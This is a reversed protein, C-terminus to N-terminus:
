KAEMPVGNYGMRFSIANAAAILAPLVENEVREDPLRETIDFVSIAAAVTGSYDRLPVSICKNNEECEENDIAYGQKRVKEIEKALVAKDTITKSTLRELGKKELIEDIRRQSYSALLVKGSGTSHIPANKGIRIMTSMAQDPNDMFDLYMTGDGNAVVLCSGVNLTNALQNLFPSAMSRLVLNVKVSDSLKCVKWTLAYCGTQDDRYAYGLACLTKLYRLLTPQPMQLADSLDILRYPMRSDALCEIVKFLRELSQNCSELNNSDHNKM